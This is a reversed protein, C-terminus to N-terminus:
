MYTLFSSCGTKGNCNFKYIIGKVALDINQHDEFVKTKTYSDKGKFWGM